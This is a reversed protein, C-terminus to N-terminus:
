KKIQFDKQLGSLIEKIRSYNIQGPATEIGEDMSAFTFEAGLLPAVLRTIKGTEGMGLVVIPKEISYLSLLRANDANSKSLTAIKAIDAGLEFCRDVIKYMERLGPTEDFNHYSIIVKCHHKRAEEIILLQQKVDAEIEIDVYRAGANISAMLRSLQDENGFPEPRCTAITPTSHSFVKKIEEIGFGTLDLRIEAMEVNDLVSLCKDINKDSIAVCIM